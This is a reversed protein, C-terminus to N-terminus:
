CFQVALPLILVFGFRDHGLNEGIRLGIERLYPEGVPTPFIFEWCLRGM